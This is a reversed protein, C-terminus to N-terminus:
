NEKVGMFSVRLEVSPQFNSDTQITFHDNNYGVKGPKVTVEIDIVENPNLTKKEVKIATSSSSVNFGVIKIPHNSVNKLSTNQTATKGLEVNGFWLLVSHNTPELEEKVEAILKIAINQSTSDNTTINIYKEILGRYGSSNFEVEAADSEGPLLVPKPQKVATCGCQPVVSLIRLPENGINKLILTGKKRMGNYIIGLDIDPKDLSLKPQSFINSQALLLFLLVILMHKIM